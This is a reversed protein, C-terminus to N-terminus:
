GDGNEAVPQTTRGLAVNLRYRQGPTLNDVWEQVKGFTPRMAVEPITGVGTHPETRPIAGGHREFMGKVTHHEQLNWEPTGEQFEPFQLWCLPNDKSEKVWKDFDPSNWPLYHARTHGVNNFNSLYFENVISNVRDALTTTAAPATNGFCIRGNGFVNPLLAPVLKHNLDKMQDKAFFACYDRFEWTDGDHSTLNFYFVTYPLSVLYAQNKRGAREWADPQTTITRVKPPLEIVIGIKLDAEDTPDFYVARTNHPLMPMMTPVRRELKPLFDELKAERIVETNLIRVLGGDIQIIEPM